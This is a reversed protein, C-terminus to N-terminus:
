VCFIAYNVNNNILCQALQAEDFKQLALTLAKKIQKTLLQKTELWYIDVFDTLDESHRMISVLAPAILQSQETNHTCRILERILLLAVTRLAPQERAEIALAIITQPSHQKILTQVKHVTFDNNQPLLDALLLQQLSELSPLVPTDVTYITMIPSPPSIAAM